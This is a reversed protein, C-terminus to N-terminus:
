IHILSLILTTSIPEELTNIKSNLPTSYENETTNFNNDDSSISQLQEEYKNPIQIIGSDNM